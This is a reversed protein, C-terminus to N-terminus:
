SHTDRQGKQGQRFCGRVFLVPHGKQGKQGEVFVCPLLFHTYTFIADKEEVSSREILVNVRLAPPESIDGAGPCKKRPRRTAPLQCGM